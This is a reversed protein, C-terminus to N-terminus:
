RTVHGTAKFTLFEPLDLFVSINNWREDDLNKKLWLIKPAQMEPSVKGGVYNLVDHRTANILEAEKVARHDLWLIINRNTAQDPTVSVPNGNEDLIVLSCTADFGIGRINCKSVKSCAKQRLFSIFFPQAM